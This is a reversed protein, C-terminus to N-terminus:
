RLDVDIVVDPGRGHLANDVLIFCPLARATNARGDVTDGTLMNLTQIARRTNALRSIVRTLPVRADLTVRPVEARVSDLGLARNM